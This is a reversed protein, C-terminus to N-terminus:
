AAVWRKAIPDDQLFYIGEEGSAYKRLVVGCDAEKRDQKGLSVFYIGKPWNTVDVEFDQKLPGSQGHVIQGFLNTIELDRAAKEIHIHVVSYSSSSILPNPFLSMGDHQEHIIEEIGVFGPQGWKTIFGDYFIGATLMFTQNPSPAFDVTQSFSGVCFIDGNDDVFAETISESAPGGIHAAWEFSGSADVKVVAFDNSGVNSNVTHVGTGPDLDVQSSFCTALYADGNADLSVSSFYDLNSGGVHGAWLFDGNVDLRFVLGDYNSFSTLQYVGVGPDADISGEFYGCVVVDGNDDIDLGTMIEFDNSEIKRAWVFNGNLDYRGVFADEYGDTEVLTYNGSGPDFDVSDAFSGTVYISTLDVGIARVNDAGIGGLAHVWVLNCNADYRAIFGDGQGNTPLTHTGPGLDFDVNSGATGAIYINGGADLVLCPSTINSIVFVDPITKAWQYQGNANLHLIFVGYASPAISDIGQGPDFDTRGSVTGYVYIGGAQNVTVSQAINERPSGLSGGWLFQGNSDLKQIFTNSYSTNPSSVQFVGVGPDLDITGAFAGIVILNGDDDKTISRALSVDSTVIQKVWAFDQASASTFAFLALLLLSLCSFKKQRKM